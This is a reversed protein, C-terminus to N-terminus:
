SATSRPAVVCSKGEPCAPPHGWGPPHASPGYPTSYSGQHHHTAPTGGCAALLLVGAVFVAVFVVDAIVALLAMPRRLYM